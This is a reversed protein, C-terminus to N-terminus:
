MIAQCRWGGVAQRTLPLSPLELTLGAVRVRPPAGVAGWAVAGLAGRSLQPLPAGVRGSFPM